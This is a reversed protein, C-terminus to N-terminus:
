RGVICQLRNTNLSSLLVPHHSSYLHQILTHRLLCVEKNDKETAAKRESEAGRNEDRKQNESPPAGSSLREREEEEDLPQELIRLDNETGEEM